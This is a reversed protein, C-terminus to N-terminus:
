ITFHRRLSLLSVNVFLNSNHVFHQMRFQKKKQVSWSLVNEFFFTSLFNYFISISLIYGHAINRKLFCLSFTFLKTSKYVTQSQYMRQAFLTLIKLIIKNLILVIFIIGCKRLYLDLNYEERSTYLMMYTHLNCKYIFRLM